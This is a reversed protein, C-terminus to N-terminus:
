LNPAQGEFPEFLRRLNVSDPIVLARASSGTRSSVLELAGM